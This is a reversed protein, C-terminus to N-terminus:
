LSLYLLSYTCNSGNKGALYNSLDELSVEKFSQDCLAVFKPSKLLINIKRLQRRLTSHFHNKITNDTRGKMEGAIQAWKNGYKQHLQFVKKEEEDIIPDKRIEPDLHNHWRERCQKASRKNLEL